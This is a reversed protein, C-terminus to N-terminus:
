FGTWANCGISGFGLDSASKRGYSTSCRKSGPTCPYSQAFLDQGNVDYQWMSLYHYISIYIIFHFSMFHFPIFHFSHILSLFLSLYISRYISLDISLYILYISPNSLDSLNSLNSRNSQNSLYNFIFLYIFLSIFFSFVIFSYM